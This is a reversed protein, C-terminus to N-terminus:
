LKHIKEQSAKIIYTDLKRKENYATYNSIMDATACKNLKRNDLISVGNYHLLLQFEEFSKRNLICDLLYNNDFNISIGNKNFFYFTHSSISARTFLHKLSEQPIALNNDKLFQIIPALKANSNFISLLRSAYRIQQEKKEYNFKIGIEKFFNIYNLQNEVRVNDIITEYIVTEEGSIVFNKM